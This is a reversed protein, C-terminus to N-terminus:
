LKTGRISGNVFQARTHSHNIFDAVISIPYDNFRSTPTIVILLLVGHAKIVHCLLFARVSASFM